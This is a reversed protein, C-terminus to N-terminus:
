QEGGTNSVPAPDGENMEIESRCCLCLVRTQKNPMDWFCEPDNDSDILVACDDCRIMSM